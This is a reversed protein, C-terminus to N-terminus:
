KGAEKVGNGLRKEKKVGSSNHRISQSKKPTLPLYSDPPEVEKRVGRGGTRAPREGRRKRKEWM